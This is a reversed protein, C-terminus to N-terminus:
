GLAQALMRIERRNFIGHTKNYHCTTDSM